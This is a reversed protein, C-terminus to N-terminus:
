TSYDHSEKPSFKNKGQRSIYGLDILNKLIVASLGGTGGAVLCNIFALEMEYRQSYASLNLGSMIHCLTFWMIISGMFSCLESNMSYFNDGDIRKILKRAKNAFRELGDGKSFQM